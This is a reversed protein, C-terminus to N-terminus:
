EHIVVIIPWAHLPMDFYNLENSEKPPLVITSNCVWTLLREVELKLDDVFVLLEQFKTNAKTTIM